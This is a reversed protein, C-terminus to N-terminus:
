RSTNCAACARWCDCLCVCKLGGLWESVVGCQPPSFSVLCGPTSRATSYVDVYGGGAEVRRGEGRM